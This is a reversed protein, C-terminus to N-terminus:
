YQLQETNREQGAEDLCHASTQYWEKLEANRALPIGEDQKSDEHFHDKPRRQGSTPVLPSSTDPTDDIGYSHEISAPRNNDRGPEIHPELCRIQELQQM